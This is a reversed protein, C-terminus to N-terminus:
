RYRAIDCRDANMCMSIVDISLTESFSRYTPSRAVVAVPARAAAFQDLMGDTVLEVAPKGARWGARFREALEPEIGVARTIDHVGHIGLFTAVFPKLSARV